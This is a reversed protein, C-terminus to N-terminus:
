SGTVAVHRSTTRAKGARHVGHTCERQHLGLLNQLAVRCRAKGRYRVVNPHDHCHTTQGNDSTESGTRSNGACIWPMCSRTTPCMTSSTPCGWMARLLIAGIHEFDKRMAERSKNKLDISKYLCNRRANPFCDKARALDSEIGMDIYAVNPIRSYPELYPTVTWAFNHIGICDFQRSIKVDYALLIDRYTNPGVMNVTCNAVTAFTHHTGYERQKGYFLKVGQLFTDSIVDLLRKARGESDILDTFIRDGRLRFATNLNGQWNLFGRASGTLKYVRDVEELLNNFFRNNRLDPVRLGDCEDDNLHPGSAVPWKDPYYSLPRGFLSDMIGIGFIGTILDPPGESLVEGINYGPFRKAVEKRMALHCELRYEADTHWRQSFDVSCFRHFWSPNFGIEPRMFPENGNSPTRIPPTGLAIYDRLTQMPPEMPFPAAAGFM